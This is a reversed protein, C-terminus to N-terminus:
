GQVKSSAIVKEFLHFVLDGNDIQYSGIYEREFGPQDVINHGTGFTQFSRMEIPQTVDIEAWIVPMNHQVQVALIKAGVPLAIQQENVIILQYKWIKKM